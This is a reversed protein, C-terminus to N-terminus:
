DKGETESDISDLTKKKTKDTIVAKDTKSQVNYNTIVSFNVRFNKVYSSNENSMTTKTRSMLIKITDGSEVSSIIDKFGDPM